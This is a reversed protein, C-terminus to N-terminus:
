EGKPKECREFEIVRVWPNPDWGYRDLDSNTITNNWIQMFEVLPPEIWGTNM